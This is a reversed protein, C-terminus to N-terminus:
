YALVHFRQPAREEMPVADFGWGIYDGNVAITPPYGGGEAQVVISGQTSMGPITVSGDTTGADFVSLVRFLRNGPDFQLSGDANFVQIGQRQVM